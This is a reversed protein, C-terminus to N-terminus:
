YYTFNLKDLYTSYDSQKYDGDMQYNIVVGYWGPASFPHYYWNLTKTVGNLTISEYKLQNDSTRSFQLILHNWSNNLPQCPIGTGDWKGDVNDWVAWDKGYIARCETGFMFGMGDFFQGVDFELAEALEMHSSYFYVDYTFHHLTPVIKHDSDPMGQSSGDGILHNNWLADSYPTTGGLDFRTADGSLSPSSIGQQMGWTVGPGCNSCIEYKPPLEGYGQWGKSAQLSTFTNGGGGGSGTVTITIPTGTGGGCKDWEVVTTNYTGASLSLQTDLKSGNVVYAKKYPATYIGMAAVGQPCSSTGAAVYHVPSTVQSNNAPSSVYVGSGQKVTITIPKTSAGGCYDWAEVVTNYTGSNLSLRADLKNGNSTYALQYPATYIGMSAIGKSCSTTASAVYHVPSQVTAGNSPENVTVGAFASTALVLVILIPRFQTM